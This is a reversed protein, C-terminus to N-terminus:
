PPLSAGYTRHALAAGLWTVNVLSYPYWFPIPTM